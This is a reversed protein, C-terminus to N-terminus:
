LFEGGELCIDPDSLTAATGKDAAAALTALLFPLLLLLKSPLASPRRCRSSRANDADM